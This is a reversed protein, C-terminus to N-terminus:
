SENDVSWIGTWTTGGDVTYFAFTDTEGNAPADPASGVEWNVAAPWTLSHSGGATVRLTFAYADNTTLGVGSYDFTFTTNGSTTLTFFNGADCDVTPTTGSLAVVTGLYCLAQVEDELQVQGAITAAGDVTLDGNLTVDGGADATVAKSAESEGAASINEIYTLGAKETDTLANTDANNEYATKIEADSMSAQGNIISRVVSTIRFHDEDADYVLDVTDGATLDGAIPDATNALKIAKAGIGDVDVTCAGTNTNAVRMTFSMGDTYATATKQMAVAYADASGTDEVFWVSGADMSARTPLRDFGQETATRDSNIESSRAKTQAAISNPSYYANAM